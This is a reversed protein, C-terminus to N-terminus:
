DVGYHTKLGNLLGDCSKKADGLLMANNENFFIPNDVAAYGVGLSRKMVVSQAAKWVRLVPMGAIISNPDDEAASNVTDNAGIVLALDTDPFDDNIEDMELVVDYPVGAEALLVNLQGPMRGAVPHIGFRVNKGKKRLLSVMEAVPYQGKAVALGYGPVIIINKSDAIAQVTQDVDWVTATGTIEMPKGTGTDGTGFGGLIVNPLSRNMAVCMIYSLIAGSAGILSGVVTMLNNNLMFGEACLAWGSYSNLVTIVVPMDAGGIAMTLTVGMVGSLGATTGLMALGGMMSSDYLFYGMAGVNAALLSANLAHRGPLMLPNSNLNGNLKGYAILSGTFTVGGIYTGLFTTAKIMTAAPDTAFGPFHDIYTSVCTLVAAMGVLSHFAAVLQPLDTIEIKKAITSGIAAGTVATGIMQALVEPNPQLIGLTAAIGSSVGIIGLANGLRATPQASLGGLAGICCLGSALYAMQHVEPYGQAVAYGYASLFAALPIGMMLPYEPPDTPRKFMDLMRQTVIFGGFINIFSILAASAALGEVVNTPYYGGGMLLLGGVATIGSIANTVSMLPSHLAPVVSWVTHYGVICGLGFTTSMNTFAPGPSGCGLANLTGLGATYTMAQKLADNFYNPEAKETKAAVAAGKQPAPAAAVSIPPNPPWSTVGKNLVISGRVVDDAMDLYYHDKDGQMSLLLKSINNSYLTSAQTPLRSPLDTFGIHTVNNYVSVEGPKITEINGGAESALDVVVSGPKMDDIMYKKILIPATRGPILATTIVIDVDKCQDHFLKMEAEIFEKSMEKAYGGETSGDEEIPVELFEAGMSEVQEKVAPRVDFARVIAGMNKAQGVAALGAVGGGIVLVKAPPVKGAATIQGTFFRGFHNSAEVVARYGSINAMSSLADFVQARSIRPVCDMGFATLKRDALAKILDPNQGPYLFSYLTAEDRFLKTEALSPQRLKLTIDQQFAAEKPVIKAGAAAFDDDRFSSLKGAGEQVNVTFGKKTLM